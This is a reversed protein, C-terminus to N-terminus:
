SEQRPLSKYLILYFTNQQLYKVVITFNNIFNYLNNAKLQYCIKPM